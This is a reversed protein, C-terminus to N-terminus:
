LGRDGPCSAGDQTVGFSFITRQAPHAWLGSICTKSGVEKM